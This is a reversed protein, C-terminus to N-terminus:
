QVVTAQATGIHGDLSATTPRKRRTIRSCQSLVIRRLWPPFARPQRLDALRRYATLFAEQAADQALHFDGLVAYACGYAMDQFRQVIQGFAELRRALPLSSDAAIIILSEVSEM